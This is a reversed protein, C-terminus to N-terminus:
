ENQEKREPCSSELKFKSINFPIKEVLKEVLILVYISVEMSYCVASLTNCPRVFLGLKIFAMKHVGSCSIDFKEHQCAEENM